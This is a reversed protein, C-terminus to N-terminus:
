HAPHVHEVLSRRTAQLRTLLVGAMRKMIACCFAPDEEAFERLRTGYFFIAEVPELTVADFQWRHPPFLWSWGLVDGAEIVQLPVKAGDPAVAELAVRGRLILYFRNAPEGTRFVREGAPFGVGMSCAAMAELHRWDMGRLFATEALTFASPSEM